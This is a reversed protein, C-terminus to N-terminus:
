NKVSWAYGRQDSIPLRTVSYEGKADIQDVAAVVGPFTKPTVDDFIIMDGTQQVAKICDYEQLVSREIHQADLFAFQIRQLGIRPLTSRTDGQVFVIHKLLDSWPELLEARTKLKETDDICNWVIRRHHPLVDLSLIFGDVGSDQMAKAMCLASFGRATGTELAVVHKENQIRRRMLSYLLRGHAYTLESNKKVIQTHLALRDLWTTDVAFRTSQEIADIDPFSKKRTDEFLDLYDSPSGRPATGFPHNNWRRDLIEGVLARGSYIAEQLWAAVHM